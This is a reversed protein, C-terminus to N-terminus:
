DKRYKEMKLLFEIHKHRRMTCEYQYLQDSQTNLKETSLSISKSNSLINSQNRSDLQSIQETDIALQALEKDLKSRRKNKLYERRLINLTENQKLLSNSKSENSVSVSWEGFQKFVLSFAGILNCRSRGLLPYKRIEISVLDSNIFNLIRTQIFHM